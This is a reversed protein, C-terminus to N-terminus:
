FHGARPLTRAFKNPIEGGETDNGKRVQGEKGGGGGGADSVREFFKRSQSTRMSLHKRSNVKILRTQLGFPQINTLNKERTLCIRFMNTKPKHVNLVLYRFNSAHYAQITM